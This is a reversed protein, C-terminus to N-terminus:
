SKLLEPHWFRLHRRLAERGRSLHRRVTIRTIRLLKAVEAVELGEVEVLVFVARVRPPLIQLSRNLIQRVEASEVGDHPRTEAPDAAGRLGEQLRKERRRSELHNWSAHITLRYVWGIPDREPDLRNLQHYLRLFVEQAVDEADTRNGVLTCAIRLVTAEYRIVLDAFAGRDGQRALRICRATEGGEGGGAGPPPEPPMTNQGRESGPLDQSGAVPGPEDAPLGAPDPDASARPSSDLV